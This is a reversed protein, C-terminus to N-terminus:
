LWQKRQKAMPQKAWRFPIFHRPSVTWDGATEALKTGNPLVDQIAKQLDVLGQQTFFTFYMEAEKPKGDPSQEAIKAPWYGCEGQVFLKNNIQEAMEEGQERDTDGSKVHIKYGFKSM